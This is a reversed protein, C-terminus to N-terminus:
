HWLIPRPMNLIIHYTVRFGTHYISNFIQTCCIVSHSCICLGSWFEPKLRAHGSYFQVQDADLYCAPYQKDALSSIWSESSASRTNHSYRYRGCLDPRSWSTHTWQYGPVERRKFYGSFSSWKWPATWLVGGSWRNACRLKCINPWFRAKIM